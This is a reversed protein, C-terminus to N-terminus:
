IEEEIQDEGHEPHGKVDGSNKCREEPAEHCEERIYKGPCQDGMGELGEEGGEEEDEETEVIPVSHAIVPDTHGQIEETKKEKLPVNLIRSHGAM